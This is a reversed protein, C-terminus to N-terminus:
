IEYGMLRFQTRIEETKNILKDTKADDPLNKNYAGLLDKFKAPDNVIDQSM